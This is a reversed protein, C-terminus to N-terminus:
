VTLWSLSIITRLCLTSVLWRVSLSILVWTYVSMDAPMTVENAEYANTMWFLNNQTMDAVAVESTADLSLAEPASCNAYIYVDYAASAKLELSSFSAIYTDGSGEPVVNKAVVYSDANAM